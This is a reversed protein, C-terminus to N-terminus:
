GDNRGRPMYDRKVNKMARFLNDRVLRNDKELADLLDKVYRRRSNRSTPCRNAIVPFGRERAFKKILEERIYALPRIIHLTGGFIRQKPMMTSIERGYFLNILLTEIVDDWHHALAVVRCGREAAIEFLRRRRLRSCLFCPNKRNERSHALPGYDTRELVFDYGGEALHRELVRGAGGDGEFGLDIHAAVIEFPPTFVMPSALLRLLVLSDAGGSVAVLVREGAGIMSFDQIAKELWKKLHRHLRTEGERGPAAAVGKEERINRVLVM